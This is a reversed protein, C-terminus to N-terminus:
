KKYCPASHVGHLNDNFVELVDEYQRLHHNEGGLNERVQKGKKIKTKNVDSLSKLKTYKGQNPYHVIFKM